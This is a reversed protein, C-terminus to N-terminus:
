PIESALAAFADEAVQIAQAADSPTALSVFDPYRAAVAWDNLSGLNLSTTRMQLASPLMAELATLDHTRPFLIGNQTLVAKLLKEVSQQANFCAIRPTTGDLLDQKSAEL